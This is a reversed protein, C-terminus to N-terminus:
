DAAAEPAEVAQRRHAAVLHYFAKIPDGSVADDAATRVAGATEPDMRLIRAFTESTLFSRLLTANSDIWAKQVPEWTAMDFVVDQGAPLGPGFEDEVEGAPTPGFSWNVKAYGTESTPGGYGGEGVCVIAWGSDSSGDNLWVESVFGAMPHDESWEERVECELKDLSMSRMRPPEEGLVAGASRVPLGNLYWTVTTGNSATTTTTELPKWNAVLGDNRYNGAGVTGMAAGMQMKYGCSACYNSGPQGQTRCQPCMGDNMARADVEQPEEPQKADQSEKEDWRDLAKRVRNRFTQDKVWETVVSQRPKEPVKEGHLAHRMAPEAVPVEGEEADTLHQRLHDLAGDRDESEDQGELDEIAARVATLNAPGPAGEEDVAHHPVSPDEGEAWAYMSRMAEPDDALRGVAEDANWPEDVLETSHPHLVVEEKGARMTAVLGARDQAGFGVQSVEMVGSFRTVHEYGDDGVVITEDPPWRFSYKTGYPDFKLDSWAERGRQTDLNYHARVVLGEEVPHFGDAFGLKKSATAFGTIMADGHDMFLPVPNQAFDATRLWADFADRDIVQPRDNGVATTSDPVDFVAVMIDAVGDGGVEQLGM